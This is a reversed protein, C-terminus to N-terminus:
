AKYRIWKALERYTAKKGYMLIGVRYIRGALWIVLTFFAVLLVISGLIQWWHTAPDLFPLRVMMAVPSTLPIMSLWVAIPGNPDKLVITTSLVITFVLPMTVPLMFQQTDTENDVAAGIAAFLASYLLYGGLFYFLFMSIIFPFNLNYFADLIGQVPGEPIQPANGSSSIEKMAEPDIADAGIVVSILMILGGSLILWILLQTLGVLAIGVVKGMMLQFPKVSSVVIEVIRNTKEQIVGKMVQVGYLFIFMYIAFALAMGVMTYLETSTKQTEGSETVKQSVINIRTDISDIMGPSIGFKEMKYSKLAKELQSNIREKDQLSIDKPSSFVIGEPDRYSLDAPITVWGTLDTEEITQPDPETDSFQFEMLDTNELRSKFLGSEDVVVVTKKEQGLQDDMVLYILLGYFGAILVPGLITMILFSKKRVRTWYERSAVLLINRM